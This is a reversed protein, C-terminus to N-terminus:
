RVFNTYVKENTPLPIGNAKGLAICKLLWAMNKGINTMTNVGEVDTQVERAEAGFVHNWYTSSVVPMSNITFYKNIVDMSAVQGNRRASLVAAAPKFAFHEGGSYFARDLVALLRATPHAYYVPSGFVFGDCSKAKEVLVNVVGDDISCHGLKECLGCDTCDSLPKNGIFFMETEVGEQNLIRAVESLAVHTCGNRNSSGNVLLVKM